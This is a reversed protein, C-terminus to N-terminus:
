GPTAPDGTEFLPAIRIFYRSPDFFRLGLPGVGLDLSM